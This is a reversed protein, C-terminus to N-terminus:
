STRPSAMSRIASSRTCWLEKINKHLIAKMMAKKVPQVMKKKMENQRRMASMDVQMVAEMYKMLLVMSRPVSLPHCDQLGSHERMVHSLGGDYTERNLKRDLSARCLMLGRTAHRHLRVTGCLSRTCVPAVLSVRVKELEREPTRAFGETEVSPCSFTVVTHGVGGLM